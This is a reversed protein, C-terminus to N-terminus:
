LTPEKYCKTRVAIRGYAYESSDTYMSAHNGRSEIEALLIELNCLAWSAQTTNSLPQRM